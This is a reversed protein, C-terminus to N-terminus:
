NNVHSGAQLKVMCVKRMIGFHNEALDKIGKDNLITIFHQIYALMLMQDHPAVLWWSREALKV